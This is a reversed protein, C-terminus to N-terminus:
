IRRLARHCCHFTKEDVSYSQDQHFHGFYWASFQTSRSVKELYEGLFAEQALESFGMLRQLFSPATHTVICDVRHGCRALAAAGRDMDSRSPLEEPFWPWHNALRYERDPSAAGGFAWFTKGELRFIEGRCIHIVNRTLFHVHTGNWETVPLANLAPHCDHNGDVFIINIDPLAGLDKELFNWEQPTNQLLYGFDGCIILHKPGSYLSLTTVLQTMRHISGHTDGTIFIM